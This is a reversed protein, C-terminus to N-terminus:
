RGVGSLSREAVEAVVPTKIALMEWKWDMVGVRTFPGGPLIGLPGGPEYNRQFPFIVGGCGRHQPSVCSQDNIHLGLTQEVVLFVFDTAPLVCLAPEIELCAAPTRGFQPRGGIAPEKKHSAGGAVKPGEARTSRGGPSRDPAWFAQISCFNWNRTIFSFIPLTEHIPYRVAGFASFPSDRNGGKGAAGIKLAYVTVVGRHFPSFTWKYGRLFWDNGFGNLWETPL